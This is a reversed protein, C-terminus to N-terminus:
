RFSIILGNIKPTYKGNRGEGSLRVYVERGQPVTLEERSDSADIALITHSSASVAALVSDLQTQTNVKFTLMLSNIEVESLMGPTIAGSTAELANTVNVKVNWGFVNKFTPAAELVKVFAAEDTPTATIAGADEDVILNLNTSAGYYIVENNTGGTVLGNWFGNAPVFVKCGTVDTLMNGETLNSGKTNAGIFIIKANSSGKAMENAYVSTYTQTGSAVADPGPIYVGTLNPCLSFARYRLTAAVKGLKAVGSFYSHYFSGNEFTVVRSLDPFAHTLNDKQFNYGGLQVVGGLSALRTMATTNYIAQRGIYTVDEPITLTGSLNTCNQFAYDAISTVTYTDGGIVMTWPINAADLSTGTPMATTQATGGGLTITKNAPDNVSYTWTVGDIDITDAHVGVAVAVASLMIVLKSM